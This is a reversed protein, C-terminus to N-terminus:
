FCDPVNKSVLSTVAEDRSPHRYAMSDQQADKPCRRPPVVGGVDMVRWGLTVGDRVCRLFDLFADAFNRRRLSVASHSDRRREQFWWGLFNLASAFTPKAVPARSQKFYTANRNIAKEM